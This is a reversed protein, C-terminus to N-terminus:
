AGDTRAEALDIAQGVLASEAADSPPRHHGRVERVEALLVAQAAPAAGPRDEEASTIQAARKTLVEVDGPLHLALLRRDLPECPHHELQLRVATV